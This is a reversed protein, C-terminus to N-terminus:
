ETGEYQSPQRNYHVYDGTRLHREVIDGIKLKYTTKQYVEVNLEKKNRIIKDGLQYEFKGCRLSYEEPDIRKGNRLVFDGLQPVYREEALLQSSILKGDRLIKDESKLKLEEGKLKRFKEVDIKKGDRIVFDGSKFQSCNKLVMHPQFYVSLNIKQGNRIVYNAKKENVLKQLSELNLSFVREPFTISKSIELPIVVEDARIFVDPGIVTRGSFDVRKGMLNSRFLGEKENLRKRICKIPRGNIQRAKKNSNDMLTKIHFELSDIYDQKNKENTEKKLRNNNKIIEVYKTTLDDDHIGKNTIVFPRCSIPLVPFNELILNLPTHADDLGLMRLDEISIAKFINKIEVSSVLVKNDKKEFMKFFKNDSIVYKSQVEGCKPCSSIKNKIYVHLFEFRNYNKYKDYGILKIHSPTILLASCKECFCELCKLIYSKFLPHIIPYALKIHGFHGPCDLNKKGCTICETYNKVVGLREDYVTEPGTLKSNNLEVVSMREIEDSNLFGFRVEKIPTSIEM